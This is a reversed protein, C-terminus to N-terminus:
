LALAALAAPAHDARLHGYHKEIMPLSTGSMRAVQLTDLGAAILDTITSHRL